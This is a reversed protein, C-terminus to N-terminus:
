LHRSVRILVGVGFQNTADLARSPLAGSILLENALKAKAAAALAAQQQLLERPDGCATRQYPDIVIM